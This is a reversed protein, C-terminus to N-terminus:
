ENLEIEVAAELGYETYASIVARTLDKVQAAYVRCGMGDEHVTLKLGKDSSQWGVFMGKELGRIHVYAIEGERLVNKDASMIMILPGSGDAVSGAVAVGFAVGDDHVLALDQGDRGEFRVVHVGLQDVLGGDALDGAVLEDLQHRQAEGLLLGFLLDDVAKQFLKACFLIWIFLQPM